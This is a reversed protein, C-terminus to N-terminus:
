FPIDKAREFRVLLVLKRWHFMSYHHGEKYSPELRRVDTWQSWYLAMTASLYPVLKTFQCSFNSHPLMVWRHSVKGLVNEQSEEYIWYVGM